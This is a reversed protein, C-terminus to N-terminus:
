WGSFPRYYLRVSVSTAAWCWQTQLQHQMTFDIRKWRPIVDWWRIISELLVKHSLKADVALAAVPVDQESAVEAVVGEPIVSIRIRSTELVSMHRVGPREPERITRAVM